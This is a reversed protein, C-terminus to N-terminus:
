LANLLCQPIDSKIQKRNARFAFLETIETHRKNLGFDFEFANIITPVHKNMIKKMEEATPKQKDLIKKKEKQEEIEKINNKNNKTYAASM